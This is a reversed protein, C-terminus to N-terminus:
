ITRRDLGTAAILQEINVGDIKNYLLKLIVVKHTIDRNFLPEYYAEKDKEFM